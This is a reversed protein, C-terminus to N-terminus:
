CTYKSDCKFRFLNFCGSSIQGLKCGCRSQGACGSHYCCDGCVMKWCECGVGCVGECGTGEVKSNACLGSLDKGALSSKPMKMDSNSSVRCDGYSRKTQSQMNALRMALVYLTMCGSSDTGYIGRRGLEMATQHILRGEESVLLAQLDKAISKQVDRSDLYKSQTLYKLPLGSRLAKTVLDRWIKPVRYQAGTGSGTAPPRSTLIYIYDRDMMSVLVTGKGVLSSSFINSGAHTSITIYSSATDRASKFYIGVRKNYFEGELYKSTLQIINLQGNSSITQYDAASAKTVFMISCVLLFLVSIGNATFHNHFHMFVRPNQLVFNFKTLSTNVISCTDLKILPYLQCKYDQQRMFM